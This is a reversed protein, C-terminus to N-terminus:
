NVIKGDVTIISNVNKGKKIGLGDRNKSINIIDINVKKKTGELKKLNIAIGCGENRYTVPNLLRIDQLVEEKNNPEFDIGCEPPTGNTYLLKPNIIELDMASIVSIGQRRNNVTVPNIISIGRSFNRKDSSGIYIGDGWCDKITPNDIKVNTAGTISIGFGWEGEKGKHHKRDGIILLKGLLSVNKVSKIKIVAYREASNPLAQLTTNDFILTVNSRLKISKTADILYVGKPFIVNGGGKDYVHDIAENIAETDDIDDDALANFSTINAYVEAPEKIKRQTSNDTSTLIQKVILFSCTLLFLLLFILILYKNKM